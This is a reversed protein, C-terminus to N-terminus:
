NEIFLILNILCNNILIPDYIQYIMLACHVRLVITLWIITCVMCIIMQLRVPKAVFNCYDILSYINDNTKRALTVDLPLIRIKDHFKRALITADNIVNNCSNNTIIIFFHHSYWENTAVVFTSPSNQYSIHHAFNDHMIRDVYIIDM